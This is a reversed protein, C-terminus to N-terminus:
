RRHRGQRRTYTLVYKPHKHPTQPTNLPTNPIYIAYVCSYFTYIRCYLTHIFPSYLTYYSPLVCTGHKVTLTEVVSMHGMERNHVCVKYNDPSAPTYETATSVQFLNLFIFYACHSHRHSHCYSNRTNVGRFLRNVCERM